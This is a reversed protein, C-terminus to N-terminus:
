HNVINAHAMLGSVYLEYDMVGFNSEIQQTISSIQEKDLLDLSGDQINKLAVVVYDGDILSRGAREGVKPLNFALDTMVAHEADSDRKAQTVKKWSLNNRRILTQELTLDNKAHLLEKGIQMAEAEAKKNELQKEILDKVEILTKEAAAVHKNVRLVIVSDSDLQIPESNNGLELVDHSFAAKVVQKNKLVADDGGHRTFLLSQKIPLQLGDSVPQLTDPSQYSIDSLKELQQTYKAQALEALLQEEIDKKVEVFPKTMTLKNEEYYRRVDAETVHIGKKIESLSLKIYDISVKEPALFTKHHQQYYHTVDDSTVTINKLFTMAPIKLYDYNRTQLYLKVFQNVDEPLSFATGILAFRQQNLLMGQRVEKQFSEPTFFAGNLAQAYRDNSFHGDEQFQPISVIAADAQASSVEFGQKRAAQISVTNVIMENLLQQKLQQESVVSMQSSQQSQRTRRYHLEFAQKTIPQGNVDVQASSDRRSQMYYDLGFLTFTIAVLVIVIWAVLGQIRENLKQLM